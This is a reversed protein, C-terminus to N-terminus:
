ERVLWLLLNNIASAQFTAMDGPGNPPGGPTWNLPANWDGSNPNAGWTASDALARGLGLFLGIAVAFISVRTRM